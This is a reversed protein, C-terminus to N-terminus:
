LLTFGIFVQLLCRKNCRLIGHTKFSSDLSMAHQIDHVVKAPVKTPGPLTHNNLNNSKM